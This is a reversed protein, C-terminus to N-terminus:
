RWGLLCLYMFNIILLRRQHTGILLSCHTETYENLPPFLVQILTRIAVADTRISDCASSLARGSDGLLHTQNAKVEGGLLVPYVTNFYAICRELAETTVNEDLQPCSLLRILLFYKLNHLTKCWLKSILRMNAIFLLRATIHQYHM